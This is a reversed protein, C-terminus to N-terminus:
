GHGQKQKKEIGRDRLTVFVLELTHGALPKEGKVRTAWATPILRWSRINTAGGWRGGKEASTRATTLGVLIKQSKLLKWTNTKRRSIPRNAFGTKTLEIRVAM